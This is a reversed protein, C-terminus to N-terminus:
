PSPQPASQNIKKGLLQIVRGTFFLEGRLIFVGPSLLCERAHLLQQQLPVGLLFGPLDSPLLWERCALPLVSCDHLQIHAIHRSGPRCKARGSWARNCAGLIEECRM